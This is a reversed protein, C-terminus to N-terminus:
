RSAVTIFAMRLQHLVDRLANEEEAELNGKTKAQLMELMDIAFQAQPRSVEPKQTMPNPIQGMAMMAETALTSILIGISAPPYGAEEPGSAPSATSRDGSAPDNNQPDQGQSEGQKAALSEKEREVQSKWDEDVIIKKDAFKKEASPEDSV